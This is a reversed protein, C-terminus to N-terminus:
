GLAKGKAQRAVGGLPHEREIKRSSSIKFRIQRSWRGMVWKERIMKWGKRIKSSMQHSQQTIVRLSPFM